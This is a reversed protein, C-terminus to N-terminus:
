CLFNLCSIIHCGGEADVQRFEDGVEHAFIVALAREIQLLKILMVLDFM